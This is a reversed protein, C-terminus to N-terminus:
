DAILEHLMDHEEAAVKGMVEEITGGFMKSMLGINMRAIYTKGNKSEYVGIRCPMMSSIKKNEEISLIKYAHDPQCMSLIKVRGFEKYGAEVLSNQLDYIKPVQWGKDLAKSKILAVSEEFPLKSEKVELMMSPMMKWVLIGTALSGIVLGIIIGFVLSRM